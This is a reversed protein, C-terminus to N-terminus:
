ETRGMLRWELLSAYRLNPHDSFDRHVEEIRFENREGSTQHTYALIMHTKNASVVRGLGDISHFRWVTGLKPIVTM